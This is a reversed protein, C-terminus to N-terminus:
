ATAAVESASGKGHLGPFREPRFPTPDVCPLDGSMIEAALRGAGPGIGFGHGSFGTALFLGPLMAAPGIVPLADPMVDILGGWRDAIKMGAFFPFAAAASEAAQELVGFAPEPDAIRVTEFPSTQDARWRRPLRAEEVFRSGLRLRLTRLGTAFAPRFERLLRFSDPVIDFITADAQSLIYGGDERRRWGFRRGAVSIEPGGGMPQTRMVSGRVKLQPLNIGLNGLFLRSWIGAALLVTQSAIAGRETVVGSVRGATTEITRVACNTHLTAGAARAANAIAATAKDPEAGADSATYLGGHEMAAGGPILRAAEDAGVMRSDLGFPAVSRLWTRYAAEDGASRGSFYLIGSTRFGTDLTGFVVPSRWDRMSVQMLPIEAPHRLTNRCWGWNRGSQEGAIVGKECLAVSRGRRALHWAASAGVIGGGIVVADVAKPLERDPEVSRLDLARQTSPAVGGASM